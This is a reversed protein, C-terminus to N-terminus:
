FNKLIVGYVAKGKVQKRRYWEERDDRGDELHAGLNGVLAVVPEVKHVPQLRESKIFSLLDRCRAVYRVKDLVNVLLLTIAVYLCLLQGLRVFILARQPVQAVGLEIADLDLAM